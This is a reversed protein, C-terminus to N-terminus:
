AALRLKEAFEGPLGSAQVERVVAAADYDVREIGGPRPATPKSSRSREARAATRGATSFLVGGFARV